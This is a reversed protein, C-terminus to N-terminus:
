TTHSPAPKFLHERMIAYRSKPVWKIADLPAFPYGAALQVWEPGIADQVTHYFSLAEQHVAQLSTHPNGSLEVQGGPELTLSGWSSEIAIIRGEERYAKADPASAIQELASELPGEYPMPQGNAASLM